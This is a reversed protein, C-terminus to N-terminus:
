LLLLWEAFIDEWLEGYSHRPITVYTNYGELITDLGNCRLVADVVDSCDILYNKDPDVGLVLISNERELLYIKRANRLTETWNKVESVGNRQVLLPVESIHDTIFIVAEVCALSTNDLWTFCKMDIENKEGTAPTLLVGKESSSYYYIKDGGPSLMWDSFYPGNVGNESIVVEINNPQDRRAGFPLNCGVGLVM